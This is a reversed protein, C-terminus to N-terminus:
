RESDFDYHVIIPNDGFLYDSMYDQMGAEASVDVTAQRDGIRLVKSLGFPLGLGGGFAPDTV